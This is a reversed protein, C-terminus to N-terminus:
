IIVSDNILRLLFFLCLPIFEVSSVLAIHQLCISIIWIATCSRIFEIIAVIEQLSSQIDYFFPFLGSVSVYVKRSNMM